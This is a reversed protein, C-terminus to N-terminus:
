KLLDLEILSKVWAKGHPHFGKQQKDYELYVIEYLNEVFTTVDELSYTLCKNDPNKKRLM